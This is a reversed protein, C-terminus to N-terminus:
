LFASDDVLFYILKILNYLVQILSIKIKAEIM